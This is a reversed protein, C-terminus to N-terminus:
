TVWPLAITDMLADVDYSTSNGMVVVGVGPEPYLRMLNHYGGGSGYHEVFAPRRDRDSPRRFWGLGHDFPRGMVAITQMERAADDSLIRVGDLQGGNAHMLLVRAADTVPGVLGGYAAGNVLFPQFTVWTGARSGVIGSPLAMRLLPRLGRPLRQHGIALTADPPIAFSTTRMGLPELIEDHVYDTFPRQAATAVVAGLLLYGL